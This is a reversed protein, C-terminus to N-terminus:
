TYLKCSQGFAPWVRTTQCTRLSDAHMLFSDKTLSKAITSADGLSVQFSLNTTVAPTHIQQDLYDSKVNVMHPTASPHIADPRGQQALLANELRAVRALLDEIM